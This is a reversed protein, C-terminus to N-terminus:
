ARRPLAALILDVAREVDLRETNITLDYHVPDAIDADFYQRVFKARTRDLHRVHQLADEDKLKLETAVHRTRAELPEVIRVRLVGARPLIFNAGRGLMVCRGVKGLALVIEALTKIYADSTLTTRQNLAAFMDDLFSRPQEDFLRLVIASVNTDRAVEDIMNGAYYAFGVRRALARAVFRGKSGAERSITVVPRPKGPGLDRVAGAWQRCQEEVLGQVSRMQQTKM